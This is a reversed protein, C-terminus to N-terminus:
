GSHVSAVGTLAKRLDTPGRVCLNVLSEKEQVMDWIYLQVTKDALAIRVNVNGLQGSRHIRAVNQTFDAATYPLELFLVDSCVQQLTDIGAGGSTHQLLIVRCDPNNVFTDIAEQKQKPTAGGWIAVSNYKSCHDILLMNSMRYRTFIALKKDGLETMVEDLLELATPAIEGGSFHLSNLPLQQTANFLASVNTLDLKRGDELVKLQNNVIEDYLKKHPPNLDYVLETYTIPPLDKLVDEKLVRVSNLALNERLLEINTWEKPKNFFDYKAVHVREFQLQNRYVGPSILKVYAYADMPSSLPTGTLLMLHNGVAFDRVKKHTDSGINKIATAEDCLIVVTFNVFTDHLRAWDKKFIQYSMLIFQTSLDLKARTAPSGRYATHTVGKIKALTRSWNTILVPPMLCIVQRAEGTSLKYLCSAISTFTKGTNGTAFIRGNRRLILFTSPVMFCYKFGDTSPVKTINRHATAPSANICSYESDQYVRVNYEVTSSRGEAERDRVAVNLTAQVGTAALAYQIFDASSKDLTSFEAGRTLCGDWYMVEDAIVKLQAVTCEYFREDFVKLREPASFTYYTYGPSTKRDHASFPVGAAQLLAVLREKKRGKKLNVIARRTTRSTFYGDAIVAVQLRLAEDSMELGKVGVPTFTTIFKGRFGQPTGWHKEALQEASIVKLKSSVQSKYLVRHEPSLMQDIGYSTKVHYMMPCPKKVFATPTVMEVTGDLNYQGVEGRQYDAIRKWGTTSLYETDSDVCGVDLYYGARELLALENVADQQFPYLEIPLEYKTKVFQYPLM